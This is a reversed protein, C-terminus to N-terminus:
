SGRKLFAGFERELQTGEACLNMDRTLIGPVGEIQWRRRKILYIVSRGRAPFDVVRLEKFGKSHIVKGRHEEPVPPPINREELIITIEEKTKGGGVVDFWELIGGPLFYELIQKEKTDM